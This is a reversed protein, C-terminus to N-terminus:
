SFLTPTAEFPVREVVSYGLRKIARKSDKPKAGLERDLSWTVHFTEGDPRTTHGGVSVVLTQLQRGDDTVGVVAFTNSEPAAADEPVGFQLTVHHAIVDPYKPPFLELLRAREQEPLTWGTYAM